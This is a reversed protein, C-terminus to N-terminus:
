SHGQICNSSLFISFLRNLLTKNSASNPPAQSYDLLFVGQFLRVLFLLMGKWIEIFDTNWGDEGQRLELHKRSLCNAKIQFM